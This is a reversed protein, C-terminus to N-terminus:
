TLFAYLGAQGSILLFPKLLFCALKKTCQRCLFERHEIDHYVLPHKFFAALRAALVGQKWARAIPIFGM